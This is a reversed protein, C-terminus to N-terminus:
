NMVQELVNNWLEIKNADAESLRYNVIDTLRAQQQPKLELNDMQRMREHIVQLIGDDLRHVYDNDLYLTIM